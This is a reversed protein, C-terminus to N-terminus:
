RSITLLNTVTAGLQKLTVPKALYENAGALLCQERDGPMALATLAIIPIDSLEPIARIQTIAELGNMNPMQIDMLIINPKYQRTMDLAELGNRAVLFRYGVYALYSVFTKINIENDEAVLVLPTDTQASSTEKFTLSELAFVPDVASDFLSIASPEVVRTGDPIIGVATAIVKHSNIGKSPEPVSPNTLPSNVSKNELELRLLDIQALSEISFQPVEKISHNQEVPQYPLTLTFCSGKGVASSVEISGNQAELLRKVLALGLGTGSYQRTLRSDIQVFSQFLKPIDAEAIGIGTDIVQFQLYHNETNVTMILNVRGGKPTFKVANNLLNILMQRVRLADISIFEVPSIVEVNVQIQKESAMQQVFRISSHCLEHVSSPMLQLKLNGSEIKALDLIDTILDLLHRGSQYINSIVDKQELSVRGFIGEELGEAFGLIANM